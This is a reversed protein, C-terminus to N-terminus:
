RIRGAKLDAIVWYFTGGLKITQVGVENSDFTMHVPKVGFACAQDLRGCRSPTRQEGIFAINMEGITNLKLGYIQNFGRATLVCIAASSSLGSKIPLTRRTIHIRLGGVSYHENIYSAM